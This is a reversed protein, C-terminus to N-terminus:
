VGVLNPDDPNAWTLTASTTTVDVQVGTVPPPDTKTVMTISAAASHNGDTDVAFVSYSFTQGPALPTDTMTTLTSPVTDVVVGQAESPPSDGVLRRIEFHDLDVDSPPNWALAVASESSQGDLGTVPRPTAQVASPTVHVDC